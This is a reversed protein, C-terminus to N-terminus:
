DSETQSLTQSLTLTQSLPTNFNLSKCTESDAWLMGRWQRPGEAVVVRTRGDSQTGCRLPPDKLGLPLVDHAKEVIPLLRRRVVM